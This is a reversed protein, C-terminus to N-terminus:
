LKIGAVPSLDHSFNTAGRLKMFSLPFKCHEM